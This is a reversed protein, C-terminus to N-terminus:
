DAGSCAPTALTFNSGGLTFSEARCDEGVSITAGSWNPDVLMRSVFNNAGADTRGGLGIAALTGHGTAHLLLRLEQLGNLGRVTIDDMDIYVTADNHTTYNGVVGTGETLNVGTSALALCSFSSIKVSSATGPCAGKVFALQWDDNFDSTENFSWSSLSDDLEEVYAYIEDNFATGSPGFSAPDIWYVINKTTLLSCTQLANTRNCQLRDDAANVGMQFNTTRKASFAQETTGLDFDEGDVPAGCAVALLSLAILKNM